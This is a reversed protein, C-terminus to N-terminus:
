VVITFNIPTAKLVAKALVKYGSKLGFAQLAAVNFGFRNMEQTIEEAINKFFLEQNEEKEALSFVKDTELHERASAVFHHFPQMTATPNEPKQAPLADLRFLIYDNPALLGFLWILPEQHSVAFPNFVNVSEIVKALVQAESIDNEKSKIEGLFFSQESSIDLFFFASLDTTKKQLISRILSNNRYALTKQFLYFIDQIEFFAPYFDKVLNMDEKKTSLLVFFVSSFLAIKSYKKEGYDVKDLLAAFMLAESRLVNSKREALFQAIDLYLSNDPLDLMRVIDASLRLKGKVTSTVSHVRLVLNPQTEAVFLFLTDGSKLRSHLTANFTGQPLKVKALEFDLVEIVTAVIIEGQRLKPPRAPADAKKQRLPVYYGGSDSGGEGARGLGGISGFDDM